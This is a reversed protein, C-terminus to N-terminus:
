QNKHYTFRLFYLYKNGMFIDNMYKNELFTNPMSHGILGDSRVECENERKTAGDENEM